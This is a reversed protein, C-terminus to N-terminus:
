SPKGAADRDDPPLPLATSAAPPTVPGSEGGHHRGHGGHGMFFHMAPCLLVLVFAFLQGVGIGLLDPLYLMAFLLAAGGILLWSRKM